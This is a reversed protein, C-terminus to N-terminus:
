LVHFKFIGSASTIALGSSPVSLATTPKLTDHSGRGQPWGQGVRRHQGPRLLRTGNDDNNRDDSVGLTPHVTCHRVEDRCFTQSTLAMMVCMACRPRYPHPLQFRHRGPRAGHAHVQSKFSTQGVQPYPPFDAARLGFHSRNFNGNILQIVKPM